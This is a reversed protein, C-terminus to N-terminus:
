FNGLAGQALHMMQHHQHIQQQLSNAYHQPFVHPSPYYNQPPNKKADGGAGGTGGGASGNGRSYSSVGESGGGAGSSLHQLYGQGANPSSSLPSTSSSSNSNMSSSSSASTMTNGMESPNYAYNESTQRQMNNNMFLWSSKQPGMQGFNHLYYNPNPANRSADLYAAGGYNGTPSAVSSSSPSSNDSPSSNSWSSPNNSSYMSHSGQTGRMTGEAIRNMTQHQQQQPHHNQYNVYSNYVSENNPCGRGNEGGSEAVTGGGGGPGNYYNSQQNQTETGM